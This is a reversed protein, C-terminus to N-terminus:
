RGERRAKLIVFILTQRFDDRIKDFDTDSATMGQGRWAIQMWRKTNSEELRCQALAADVITEPSERPSNIQDINRFACDNWKENAELMESWDAKLRDTDIPTVQLMAIFLLM